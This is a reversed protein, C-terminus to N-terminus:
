CHCYRTVPRCTTIRGRRQYNGAGPNSGVLAALISCGRCRCEAGSWSLAPLRGISANRKQDPRLVCSSRYITAELDGFCKVTMMQRTLHRFNISNIFLGFSNIRLSLGVLFYECSRSREVERGQRPSQM